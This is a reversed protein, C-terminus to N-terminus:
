VPAELEVQVMRIQFALLTICAVAVVAVVLIQQERQPAILAFEEPVAAALAVMEQLHQVAQAFPLRVTPIFTEVAVVVVAVVM